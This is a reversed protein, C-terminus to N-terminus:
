KELNLKQRQKQEVPKKHTKILEKILKWDKSLWRVYGITEDWDGLSNREHFSKATRYVYYPFWFTDDKQRIEFRGAVIRDEKVVYPISPDNVTREILEKVLGDKIIQEPNSNLELNYQIYYSIIGFIAVAILLAIIIGM